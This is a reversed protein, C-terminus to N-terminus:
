GLKAGNCRSKKGKPIKIDYQEKGAGGRGKQGGRREGEGRKEGSSKVGMERGRKTKSISEILV